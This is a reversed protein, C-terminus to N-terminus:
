GYIVRKEKELNEIFIKSYDQTREQTLSRTTILDVPKGENCLEVMADFVIGYQKQYFDEGKLIESAIVIADRDLIMAGLVSQEAELSHPMIKKILDEQM